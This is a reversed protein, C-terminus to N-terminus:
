EHRASKLNALTDRLWTLERAIGDALDDNRLSDPLVNWAYTEAELVVNPQNQMVWQLCAVTQDMTSELLGFQEVFLPVHFHTRWEGGPLGDKVTELALPLDEFFITNAGDRVMTQHLYRTENFAALQELATRRETDSEFQAFNARVASSVQVKGVAIGAARYRHLVQEQDEFMVAAHCIDHCVRLHRRIIAEEGFAFLWDEFFRVVDGATDIMCGPEPEIDVHILKGTQAEIRTLQQALKAFNAAAQQMVMPRQNAKSRWGIPLTSISGESLDPGLLQALINALDVTYDFRATDDWQPQYVRHKVEPEHFDGYPFGNITYPVLGRERLWLAFHGVQQQEILERAARAPLWLGVGMPADPSFMEKVRLTYRELNALTSAYDTGAHVNTCYGIMGNLM